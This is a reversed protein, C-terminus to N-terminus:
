AARSRDRFWVGATGRRRRWASLLRAGVTVAVHAPLHVVMRADERLVATVGGAGGGAHGARLGADRVDVNGQHIRAKRSVCDAFRRSVPRWVVAGPVRAKEHDAFLGDLFYDDGILRPWSDFRERGDRSVAMANTGAIGRRNAPLREWFAHHSRVVLSAGSVDYRPTAGAAVLDGSEVADLLARAADATLRVDADLYLRPFTMARADGADLAAPKSGAPLELVTAWPATVRAVDATRDGCGNAVVVVETTPALPALATLLDGITREEDHAPIVISAV